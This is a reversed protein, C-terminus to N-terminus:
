IAPQALDNSRHQYLHGIIYLTYTTTQSLLILALHIKKCNSVLLERHFNAVVTQSKRLTHTLPFVLGKQAPYRM